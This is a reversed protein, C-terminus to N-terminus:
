AAAPPCLAPENTVPRVIHNSFGLYVETLDRGAGLALHHHFGFPRFAEVRELKDEDDHFYVANLWDDLAQGQTIQGEGTHLGVEGGNWATQRARSYVGLHDRLVEGAANSRLHRDILGHVRTFTASTRRGELHLVRFRLAWAAVAEDDERGEVEIGEGRTWQFSYHLKEGLFACQALADARSVYRRLRVSEASDFPQLAAVFDLSSDSV